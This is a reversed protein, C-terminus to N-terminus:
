DNWNWRGRRFDWRYWKGLGAGCPGWRYPYRSYFRPSIGRGYGYTGRGLRGAGRRSYTGIGGVGFGRYGYYGSRFGRLGRRFYGRGFYGRGFGARCYPNTVYAYYTDFIARQADTLLDRIKKEHLIEKDRIDDELKYIVDWVNDIKTQDPNRQAFLDDLAAFNSRLKAILPSLEKELEIELKDIAEMQEQTLNLDYYDDEIGPDYRYFRQAYLGQSIVLFSVLVVGSILTNKKMGKRRINLNNNQYVKSIFM